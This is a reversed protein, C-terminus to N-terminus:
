QREQQQELRQMLNALSAAMEGVTADLRAVVSQLDDLAVRDSSGAVGSEVLNRTTEQLQSQQEMLAEAQRHLEALQVEAANAGSQAAQDALRRAIEEIGISARMTATSADSALRFLRWVGIIAILCLVLLAALGSIAATAAAIEFAEEGTM